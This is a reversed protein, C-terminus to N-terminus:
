FDTKDELTADTSDLGAWKIFVQPVRVFNQLITRSNLVEESKLIPGVESTTFSL